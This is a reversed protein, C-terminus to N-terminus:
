MLGIAITTWLAASRNEREELARDVEVLFDAALMTTEEVQQSLKVLVETEEDMNWAMALAVATVSRSLHGDLYDEMIVRGDAQLFRRDFWASGRVALNQTFRDYTQLVTKYSSTAGFPLVLFRDLANSITNVLQM